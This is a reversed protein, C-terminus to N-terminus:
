RRASSSKNEADASLFLGDLQGEKDLDLHVCTNTPWCYMRFLLPKSALILGHTSPIM